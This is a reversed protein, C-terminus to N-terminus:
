TPEKNIKYPNPGQAGHAKIAALQIEKFVDKPLIQRAISVFFHEFTLFTRDAVELSKLELKLERRKNQLLQIKQGILTREEEIKRYEQFPLTVLLKKRIEVVYNILNQKEESIRSMEEVIIKARKSNNACNDKCYEVDYTREALEQNNGTRRPAISSSGSRKLFNSNKCSGKFM